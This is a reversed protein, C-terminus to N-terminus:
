NKVKYIKTNGTEFVLKGLKSWKSEDLNPYKQSELVGIFIYEINYNKLLNKTQNVNTSEYLTQVEPIRKGAEDYSGRWLWEHVPWGIVTPLGTNASVRAYDTYSEGNAELIVPQGKINKRMWMIAEYDEPYERNMWQLGDLGYYTKLGGFYSNIAFFPYIGVLFFLPVFCILFIIKSIKIKELSIRIFIYASNVSMMMFAQYGFKFMTNARYHAPYIDKVYFFEPFILLLTSIVTTIIVYIDTIALTTKENRANPRLREKIKPLLIILFYSVFMFYFFGWLTALMWIPSKQCKGDEFLFPGINKGILFLPACLVGIGTGFPKFFLSFPLSALLFFLFLFLSASTTKILAEKINKTKTWNIYFITAGTLTLYILGDWANTMYMVAIIWGLLIIYPLPISTRLHFVEPFNKLEYLLNHKWSKNSVKTLKEASQKKTLTLINFIIALTLLVFPIDSVHGHLDSVVFSYLPFEHITYPIFRTANPYWYTEPHIGKELEWFPQPNENPYGKTFAYITHLNGGMSVLFAALFGGIITYRMKNIENVQLREKIFTYVINIGISFSLSFTFAFTTAIMLNYTISSALGSLKTLLAAIFHGFYYYNIFFGGDYTPSKTLWMDLPPFYTTRMISEIFGFDMFKELGRISPEAAKIYSWFLLTAFFLLEEVVIWAIHIKNPNESQTSKTKKLIYLNVFAICLFTLLISERSFPLIKIIGLIWVTYSILFIAIVKSFLYGHDLFKPFIRKTLPFMCLGLVFLMAWWIIVSTGDHLLM